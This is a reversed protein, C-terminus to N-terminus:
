VRGIAENIKKQIISARQSVWKPDKNTILAIEDNTKVPRGNYGTRWEFIKQDSPSLDYYVYDLMNDVESKGRVGPMVNIDPEEPDRISGENVPMHAKRIKGIRKLTLGSYDAIEADSAERGLVDFLEKETNDLKNKDLIV